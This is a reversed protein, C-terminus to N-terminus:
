RYHRRCSREIILGNSDVFGWLEKALLLHCMQFKWTMWNKGDLRDISMSLQIQWIELLRVSV